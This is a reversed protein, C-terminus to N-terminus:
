ISSCGPCSLLLPSIVLLWDCWGAPATPIAPASCRVSALLRQASTWGSAYNLLMGLTICISLKLVSDLM